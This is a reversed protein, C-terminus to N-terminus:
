RPQRALASLVARLSATIINPHTGVGWCLSGDGRSPRWTPSPPPMPARGSRTSPTTSSTSRSASAPACRTWSRRSRGTARARHGHSADGDVVLQATIARATQATAPRSRSRAARLRARRAPVRHPVRGVDGGPQDRDRQGRHDGPHDQLVRDAPPPASRLRARGEHHLGRRGQRVPQQRPDRGRLHAGRAEPRHAPVPGGVRRLRRPLAEM